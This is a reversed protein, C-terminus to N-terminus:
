AFHARPLSLAFAFCTAGIAIIRVIEARILDLAALRYLV